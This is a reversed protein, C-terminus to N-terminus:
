WYRLCWGAGQVEEPGHLAAQATRRPLNVALCTLICRGEYMLAKGIWDLLFRSSWGQPLRRVGPPVEGKGSHRCMGPTNPTCAGAPFPQISCVM